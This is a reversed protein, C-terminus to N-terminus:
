WLAGLLPDSSNGNSGLTDGHCFGWDLGAAALAKVQRRVEAALDQLYRWDAPRHALLPAIRAL